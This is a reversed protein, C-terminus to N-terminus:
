HRSKSPRLLAYILLFAIIILLYVIAAQNNVELFNM